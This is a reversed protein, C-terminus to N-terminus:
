HEAIYALATDVKPNSPMADRGRKLARAVGERLVLDDAKARHLRVILPYDGYTTTELRFKGDQDPKLTRVPDYYSSQDLEFTAAYTDAPANEVEFVVRYHTHSDGSAVEPSGEDDTALRVTIRPERDEAMTLGSWGAAGGM